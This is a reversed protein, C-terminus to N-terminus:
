RTVADVGDASDSYEIVLHHPLCVIPMASSTLWGMDVCTRDPCDASKVRIRHDQIEVTNIHGNYEIDFTRDTEAKLDLTYLVEGDSIVRVIDRAPANMVLASGIIGAALIVAAIIIFVKYKM